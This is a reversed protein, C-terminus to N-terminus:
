NTVNGIVVLKEPNSERYCITLEKGAWYNDADFFKVTINEPVIVENGNAIFKASLHM